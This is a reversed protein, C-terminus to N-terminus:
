TKNKVETQIRQEGIIMPTSTETHERYCFHKQSIDQKCLLKCLM